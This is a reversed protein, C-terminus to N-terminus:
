NVRVMNKKTIGFSNETQDKKLVIVQNMVSFLFDKPHLSMKICLESRISTWIEILLNLRTRCCYVSGHKTCCNENEM